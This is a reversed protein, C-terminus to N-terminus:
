EMRSPNFHPQPSHYACVLRGIDLSWSTRIGSTHNMQDVDLHKTDCETDVRDTGALQRVRLLIVPWKLRLCMGVTERREFRFVYIPRKAFLIMAAWILSCSIRIMSPDFNYYILQRFWSGNLKRMVHSRQMVGM